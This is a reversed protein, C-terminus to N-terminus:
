ELEVRGIGVRERPNQRISNSVPPNDRIALQKCQAELESWGAQYPAPVAASKLWRSPKRKATFAQVVDDHQVSSM